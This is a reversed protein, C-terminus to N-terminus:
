LAFGCWIVLSHTGIEIPKLHNLINAHWAGPKNGNWDGPGSLADSIKTMIVEQDADLDDSNVVVGAIRRLDDMTLGARSLDDSHLNVFRTSEPIEEFILLANDM